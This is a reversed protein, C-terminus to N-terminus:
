ESDTRDLAVLYRAMSADVQEIRKGVKAVTFNKDRNNVATFKSGDITVVAHGDLLDLRRQQMSRGIAPNRGPEVGKARRMLYQDALAREAWFWLAAMQLPGARM